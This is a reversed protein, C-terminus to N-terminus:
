SEIERSHVCSLIRGHEFEVQYETFSPHLGRLIEKAEAASIEPSWWQNVIYAEWAQKRRERAETTRQAPSKPTAPLGKAVRRTRRRNERLAADWAELFARKGTAGSAGAGQILRRRSMILDYAPREASKLRRAQIRDHYPRPLGAARREARKTKDRENRRM